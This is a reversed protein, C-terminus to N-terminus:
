PGVKAAPTNASVASALTAANSQMTTVLAQLAVPDVTPAAALKALEAALATLLAVVSADVSTENAVAATLNDLLAMEKVGQTTLTTLLTIITSLKYNLTRFANYIDNEM